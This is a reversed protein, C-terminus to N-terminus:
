EQEPAHDPTCVPRTKMWHLLESLLYGVRNGSLQRRQPFKGLKELRWMTIESIGTMESARPKSIYQDPLPNDSAQGRKPYVDLGNNRKVLGTLTKAM